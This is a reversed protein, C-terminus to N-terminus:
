SLTVERVARNIATEGIDGGYYAINRMNLSIVGLPLSIPQNQKVLKGELECRIKEVIGRANLAQNALKVDKAFFAKVANDYGKFAEEDLNLLNEFLPTHVKQSCLTSIINAISELSDAVYEIRKIATLYDVATLPDISLANAVEPNSIASRLQRAVLFYLRDVDSDRLAASKALEPDREKLATITDQHMLSTVLHARHIGKEVPFETIRILANIVVTEPSEEVIELGSVKRLFENIQERQEYAIRGKCNIKIIDYGDLYSAIIKRALIGGAEGPETEILIERRKCYDANPYIIISKDKRELLTLQTGQKLGIKEAWPKPLSVTFTSGGILQVRRYEM